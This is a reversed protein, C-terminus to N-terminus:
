VQDYRYLQLGEILRILKGAYAPDTAYGAKKLGVAWQRYDSAPLRLLHRYRAGTLLRAHERYGEEPSRFVRFMDYADDDAYNRCTCGKCKRRCKIGFHNNSQIALPSDGVNSELLAQALTISAPIHYQKMQRVALPSYRDLYARIHRRHHRVVAQPLRKSHVLGPHLVLSLPSYKEALAREGPRLRGSKAADGPGSWFGAATRIATPRAAAELSKLNLEVRIDKELFLYGFLVLLALRFLAAESFRMPWLGGAQRETMVPAQMAKNKDLNLVIQKTKM